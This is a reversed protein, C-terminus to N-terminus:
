ASLRSVVEPLKQRIAVLVLAPDTAWIQNHSALLWALGQQLQAESLFIPVVPKRLADAFIVERPCYHSTVFSPSVLALVGACKMLKEEIVTPWSEGGIISRDIWASVGDRALTEILPYVIEQDNRAYSVFIFPTDPGASAGGPAPPPPRPLPAGSLTAFIPGSGPAHESGDAADLRLGRCSLIRGVEESTAAATAADLGPTEPEGLIVHSHVLHAFAGSKDPDLWQPTPAVGLPGYLTDSAIGALTDWVAPAHDPVAALCEEVHYAAQKLRGALATQDRVFEQPASGDDALNSADIMADRVVSRPPSWPTAQAEYAFPLGLDVSAESLAVLRDALRFAFRVGTGASTRLGETEIGLRTEAEHVFCGELSTKEHPAETQSGGFGHTRLFAALVLRLRDEKVKPVVFSHITTVPAGPAVEVRVAASIMACQNWLAASRRFLRSWTAVASPINSSPWRTRVFGQVFREGDLELDLLLM